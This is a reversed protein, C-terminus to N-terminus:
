YPEGHSDSGHYLRVEVEYGLWNAKDIYDQILEDAYELEGYAITHLEEPWALRKGWRDTVRFIVIADDVNYKYGTQRDRYGNTYEYDTQRDRYGKASGYRLRAQHDRDRQMQIAAEIDREVMQRTYVPDTVIPRPMHREDELSAWDITTQGDWRARYPSGVGNAGARRKQARLILGGALLTFFPILTNDAVKM